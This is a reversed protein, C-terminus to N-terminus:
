FPLNHCPVISGRTIPPPSPARISVVFEPLIHTNMHTCWIIYKTPLLLNDVGSDFEKSSPHCQRSGPPVLEMSGLIVRCLLLHRLGNEDPTSLHMSCYPLVLFFLFFLCLVIEIALIPFLVNFLENSILTQLDGKCLTGLLPFIYAAVMFGM